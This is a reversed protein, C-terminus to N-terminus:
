ALVRELQKRWDAPKFGREREEEVKRQNDRYDDLVADSREGLSARRARSEAEDRAIEPAVSEAWATIDRVRSAV